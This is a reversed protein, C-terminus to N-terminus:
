GTRLVAVLKIFPEPETTMSLDVWDQYDKFIKETRTLRDQRRQQRLAVARQDAEFELELQQLHRGKLKDLRSRQEELQASLGVAFTEREALLHRRGQQIAELRLALLDEVPVQGPNPIPEQGLRTRSITDTFPEVKIFRGDEFVASLWRCLV